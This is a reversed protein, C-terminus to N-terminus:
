KIQKVEENKKSQTDDESEGEGDAGPEEEESRRIMEGALKAKVLPVFREMNEVHIRQQFMILIFVEDRSTIPSVRAIWRQLPMLGLKEKVIDKMRLSNCPTEEYSIRSGALSKEGLKVQRKRYRIAESIDYGARWMIILGVYDAENLQRSKLLTNQFAILAGYYWLYPVAVARAARSRIAVAGFLVAPATALCLFVFHNLLESQHNLAKRAIRPALM